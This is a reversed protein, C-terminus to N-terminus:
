LRIFEVRRNNARGESTSNDSLPKTDGFGKTTLRGPDIGMTVLQSKVAEARQQSLTANHAAGGSNDTHGGIEFRISPNETLIGKIANLAGMSEPKISSKDVDFNIGHTVIKSDTFKKTYMNMSGGNAVRFGAMVVPMNADGIGEIDFAGPKVPLSPVTLVRYQDVYVKLQNHRYAIAIHHWKNHYAAGQLEPPYKGSLEMTRDHNSVTVGEWINGTCIDVQALDNNAGKADAANAYFYLHPGYGGSSYSDFEITFTDTLYTNGKVLPSVHAFNGDTLLLARRGATNNLVAQGAGLNWHSPFEGDQDDAFADEFVIRDGPIFDYNSYAKISASAGGDSQLQGNAAQQGPGSAQVSADGKKKKFMGKIGNDLKDAANNIGTHTDDNAHNTGADKAVQRPDVIQARSVTCSTSLLLVALVKKM